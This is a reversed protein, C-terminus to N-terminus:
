TSLTGIPSSIAWTRLPSSRFVEPDLNSAQCLQDIVEWNFYVRRDDGMRLQLDAFSLGDPIRIVLELIDDQKIM